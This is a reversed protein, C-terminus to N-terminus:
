CSEGLLVLSTEVNAITGQLPWGARARRFFIFFSFHSATAESIDGEDGQEPGSLEASGFAKRNHEFLEAFRPWSVTRLLHRYFARLIPQFDASSERRMLSCEPLGSM